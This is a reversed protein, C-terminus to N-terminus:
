KGALYWVGDWEEPLPASRLQACRERLVRAPGDEACLRLCEAFGREAQAFDRARYAVLAKAYREHRELDAAGLEGSRGLVEYIRVPESKGLVLVQDVERAEVANQALRWTEGSMLQRTGYVKNVGTLRSAANVADGIATFSRATPSGVTGIVVEGTAIGARMEIRPAGRRLGTLAPLEPALRTLTDQHDLAALCAAAAHGDGPSFPPMFFAMVADGIYKDVIGGRAQIAAAADTFVRNLLRVLVEATLTESIGTFGAIDAFIVTVTRREAHEGTDGGSALVHAVIRPDFFRGFTETTKAQERLRAVMGDFARTLDGVEDGGGAPLAVDYSGEEVRRAAELLLCLKRVLRKAFDAGLWVGLAAALVFLADSVRALVGLHENATEVSSSELQSLARRVSALDPGIAQEFPAIAAAIRVAESVNGAGYAASAQDGLSLFPAISRALLELTGRIRSLALRDDVGNREDGIARDLLTMAAALDHQIRERTTRLHAELAGPDMPEHAASRLARGLTLEYDDTAVDLDSALQSIPVHYEAVGVLEEHVRLVLWNSLLVVVAFILPLAAFRTVIQARLKV